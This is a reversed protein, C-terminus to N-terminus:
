CSLIVSVHVYESLSVKVTETIQEMADDIAIISLNSAGIHSPYASSTLVINSLEDGSSLIPSNSALMYIGGEFITSYSNHRYFVPNTHNCYNM